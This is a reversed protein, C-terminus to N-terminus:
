TGRASGAACRRTSRPLLYFYAEEIEATTPQNTTLETLKAILASLKAPALLETQRTPM